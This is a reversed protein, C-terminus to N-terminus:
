RKEYTYTYTVGNNFVTQTPYGDSNYTHTATFSNSGGTTVNRSTYATYNNKSRPELFIFEFAASYPDKKDDYSTYTIESTLANTSNYSEEKTFNGNTNITYEIRTTVNSAVNFVSRTIKTPTYVFDYTRTLTFTTPNISDSIEIRTCRNEANYSYNYRTARNNIYDRLIAVTPLNNSAFQTTITEQHNIGDRYVQGMYRNQNDYKFDRTVSGAVEKVLLIKQLPPPTAADKKKCSFLFFISIVIASILKM